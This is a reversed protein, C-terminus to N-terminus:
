EGSIPAIFLPLALPYPLGLDNMTIEDAPVAHPLTRPADTLDDCPSGATGASEVDAESGEVRQAIFLRAEGGDVQPALDWHVFSVFKEVYAQGTCGSGAYYVGIPSKDIGGLEVLMVVAGIGEIYTPLINSNPRLDGALLGLEHGTADFV